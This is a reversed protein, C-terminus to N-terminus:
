AGQLFLMYIGLATATLLAAVVMSGLVVKSTHLHATRRRDPGVVRLAVPRPSFILFFALFFAFVFVILAFEVIAARSRPDGGTEHRHM